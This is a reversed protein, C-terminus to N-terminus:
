IPKRAEGAGSERMLSTLVSPYGLLLQVWIKGAISVNREAPNEPQVTPTPQGVGADWGFRLAIM